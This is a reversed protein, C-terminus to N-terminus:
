YVYECLHVLHHVAHVICRHSGGMLRYKRFTSVRVIGERVMVWQNRVNM